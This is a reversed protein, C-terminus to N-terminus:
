KKRIFDLEEQRIRDKIKKQYNVIHEPYDQFLPYVNESKEIPQFGHCFSTSPKLKTPTKERLSHAVRVIRPVNVPNAYTL